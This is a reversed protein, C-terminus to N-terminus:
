FLGPIFQFDVTSILKLSNDRGDKVLGIQYKGLHVQVGYAPRNLEYIKESEIDTILFAVGIHHLSSLFGKGFLYYNLGIQLTKVFRTDTFDYCVPTFRLIPEWSSPGNVNGKFPPILNMVFLEVLNVKESRDGYRIEFKRLSEEIKLKQIEFMVKYWEQWSQLDGINELPEYQPLFLSDQSKIVSVMEVLTKLFYKFEKINSQFVESELFNEKVRISKTYFNIDPVSTEIMRSIEDTLLNLREYDYLRIREKEMYSQSRVWTENGYILTDRVENRGLIDFIKGTEDMAFFTEPYKEKVANAIARCDRNVSLYKRAYEKLTDYLPEARLPLFVVLILLTIICRM